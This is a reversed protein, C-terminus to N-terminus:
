AEKQRNGRRKGTADQAKIKKKKGGIGAGGNPFVM